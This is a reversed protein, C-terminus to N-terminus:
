RIQLPTGYNSSVSTGVVRALVRYISQAGAGRPQLELEHQQPAQPDHRRGARM